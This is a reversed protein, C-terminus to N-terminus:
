RLQRQQLLPKLATRVAIVSNFSSVVIANKARPM